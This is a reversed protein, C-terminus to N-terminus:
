PRQQTPGQRQSGPHGQAGISCSPQGEPSPFYPPLQQEQRQGTLEAVPSSSSRKSNRSLKPNTEKGGEGQATVQTQFM